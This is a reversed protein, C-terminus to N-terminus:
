DTCAIKQTRYRYYIKYLRSLLYRYKLIEISRQLFLRHLGNQTGEHSNGDATDINHRALSEIYLGLVCMIREFRISCMFYLSGWYHNIVSILMCTYNYVTYMIDTYMQFDIYWSIKDQEELLEVVVFYVGCSSVDLLLKESIQIIEMSDAVSFFFCARREIPWVQALVATLESKRNLFFFLSIAFISFELWRDTLLNPCGAVWRNAVEVRGVQDTNPPFLAIPWRPGGHALEPDLNEINIIGWHLERCRSCMMMGIMSIKPCSALATQCSEMETVDGAGPQEGEQQM